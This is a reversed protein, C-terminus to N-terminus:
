LTAFTGVWRGPMGPFVYLLSPHVRDRILVYALIHFIILKATIYYLSGTPHSAETTFYTWTLVELLLYLALLAFFSDILYPTFVTLSKHLSALQDRATRPPM